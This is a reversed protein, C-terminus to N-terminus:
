LGPGIVPGNNYEFLKCCWEKELTGGEACKRNFILYHLMGGKCKM